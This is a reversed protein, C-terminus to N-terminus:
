AIPQGLLTSILPIAVSPDPAAIPLHGASLDTGAFVTTAWKARVRPPVAPKAVPGWNGVPQSTPSRPRRPARARVDTWAVESGSRFAVSPHTNWDVICRM